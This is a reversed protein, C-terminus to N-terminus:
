EARHGVWDGLTIPQGLEALSGHYFYVFARDVPGDIVPVTRRVYPSNAEDSPDFRELADLAALMEDGTLRYIEVLVRGAPVPVFAPYPYSWNPTGPIYHITGLVYGTGLFEAGDLLGHNLEGRRLTGYVAVPM